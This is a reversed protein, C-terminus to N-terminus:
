SAAGPRPEAYSTSWRRLLERRIAVREPPVAGAVEGLKLIGLEVLHRALLGMRIAPVLAPEYAKFYALRARHFDLTRRRSFESREDGQDHVVSVDELVHVEFGADKMRRCWEIDSDNFPFRLADMLGAKAIAVRSLVLPSTYVVDRRPGVPPHDLGLRATVQQGLVFGLPSPFSTSNGARDGSITTVNFGVAAVRLNQKLYTVGRWLGSDSVVNDTEFLCVYPATTSLIGLNVGGAFAVKISPRLLKLGPYRGTAIWASVLEASGDTSGDDVVLVEGPPPRMHTYVSALARELLSRRNFSNVVLALESSAPAAVADGEM